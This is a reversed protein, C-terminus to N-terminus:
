RPPPNVSSRRERWARAKADALKEYEERTVVGTARGPVLESLREVQLELRANEELLYRHLQLLEGHM